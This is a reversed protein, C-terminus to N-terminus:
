GEKWRDGDGEKSEQRLCGLFGALLDAREKEIQRSSRGDMEMEGKITVKKM